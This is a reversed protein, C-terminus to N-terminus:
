NGESHSAVWTELTVDESVEAEDFQAEDKFAELSKLTLPYVDSM